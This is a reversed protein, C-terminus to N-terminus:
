PMDHQERSQGNLLLPQEMEMWVGRRVFWGVGEVLEAGHSTIEPMEEFM